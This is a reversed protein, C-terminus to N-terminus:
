MKKENSVQKNRAAQYQFLGSSPAILWVQYSLYLVPQANPLGAINIKQRGGMAENPRIEANQIGRASDVPSTQAIISMWVLIREIGVIVM